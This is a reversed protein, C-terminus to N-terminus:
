GAREGHPSLTNLSALNGFWSFCNSITGEARV